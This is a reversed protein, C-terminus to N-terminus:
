NKWKLYVGTQKEWAPLVWVYYVNVKKRFDSIKLNLSQKKNIKEVINYYSAPCFKREEKNMKEVDIIKLGGKIGKMEAKGEEWLLKGKEDELHKTLYKINQQASGGCIELHAGEIKKFSLRVSRSYQVYIHVHEHGTKDGNEKVAISYQYHKINKLYNKLDGAREPENLTLQFATACQTTSKNKKSNKSM